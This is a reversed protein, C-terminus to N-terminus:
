FYVDVTGGGLTHMVVGAVELPPSFDWEMNGAPAAALSTDTLRINAAADKITMTQGSAGPKWTVKSIYLKEFCGLLVASTSATDLIWHRDQFTNAM